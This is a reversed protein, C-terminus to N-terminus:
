QFLQFADSDSTIYPWVTLSIQGPRRASLSGQPDGTVRAQVGVVGAVGGTVETPVAAVQLIRAGEGGTLIVEEVGLSDEILDHAAVTYVRGLHTGISLELQDLPHCCLM